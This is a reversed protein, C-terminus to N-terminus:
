KGFSKLFSPLKSLWLTHAQAILGDKWYVPVVVKDLSRSALLKEASKKEVGISLLAKRLEDSGSPKKDLAARAAGGGGLISSAKDPLAPGGALPGRLGVRPGLVRGQLDQPPLPNRRHHDWSVRRLAGDALSDEGQGKRAERGGPAQRHGDRRLGAPVGARGM